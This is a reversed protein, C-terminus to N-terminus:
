GPMKGTERLWTAFDRPDGQHAHAWKYEVYEKDPASQLATDRAERFDPLFVWSNAGLKEFMACELGGYFANPETLGGVARLWSVRWVCISNVVPRHTRWTRIGGRLEETYGRESMERESVDNGLSVWAVSKDADMVRRAAVDWGETLPMTDPDYGVVLADDPLGLADLAVNFGRHLGLNAGFTMYRHGMGWAIWCLESSNIESNPLPYHQDVMAVAVRGQTTNFLHELSRRIVGPRNFCLSIAWLNM